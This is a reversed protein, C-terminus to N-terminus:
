AGPHRGRRQSASKREAGNIPRWLLTVNHGPLMWSAVDVEIRGQTTMWGGDLPVGHRNLTSQVVLYDLETGPRALEQVDFVVQHMYCPHPPSWTFFGLEAPFLNTAQLTLSTVREVVHDADALDHLDFQVIRLNKRDVWEPLRVFQDYRRLAVEEGDQRRPAVVHERSADDVYTIGVRLTDRLVPVFDELQDENDLTWLEFFPYLRERPVLSSIERDFTAFIVFRHSDRVGSFEHTWTAEGCCTADDIARLRFHARTGRSVATDRGGPDRGAGGLVGTLVDEHGVRDGYVRPLLASLVTRPPMSRILAPGAVDVLQRRAWEALRRRNLCLLLAVLGITLLGSVLVAAVVPVVAM